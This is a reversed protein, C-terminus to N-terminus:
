SFTLSKIHLLSIMKVIGNFKYNTCNDEHISVAKPCSLKQVFTM